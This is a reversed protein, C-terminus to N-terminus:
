LYSWAPEGHLMAVPSVTPGGEAVHALRIGHWERYRPEYPFGPLNQFREESTRIIEVLAIRCFLPL